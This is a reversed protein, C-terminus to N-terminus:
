LMLGGSRFFSKERCTHIGEPAVSGAASCPALGRAGLGPNGPGPYRPGPPKIERLQHSQEAASPLNHPRSGTVGSPLPAIQGRRWPYARLGRSPPCGIWDAHVSRRSSRRGTLPTRKRRFRAEAIRSSRPRPPTSWRRNGTAGPSTWPLFNGLALYEHRYTGTVPLEKLAGTLITSRSGPHGAMGQVQLWPGVRVSGDM